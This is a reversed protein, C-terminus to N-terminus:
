SPQLLSQDGELHLLATGRCPQRDGLSALVDPVCEGM